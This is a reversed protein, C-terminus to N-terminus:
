APRSASPRRFINGENETKQQKLKVYYASLRQYERFYPSSPDTLSEIIDPSTRYDLQDLPIIYCRGAEKIRYPDVEPDCYPEGDVVLPHTPAEMERLDQITVIIPESRSDERYEYFVEDTFEDNPNWFVESGEEEHFHNLELIYNLLPSVPYNAAEYLVTGSTYSITDYCNKLYALCCYRDKEDSMSSRDWDSITDANREKVAVHHKWEKEVREFIQELKPLFLHIQTTQRGLAYLMDLVHDGDRKYRGREFLDIAFRSNGELHFSMYLAAFYNDFYRNGIFNYLGSESETMLCLNDKLDTLLAEAKIPSIELQAYSNLASLYYSMRDVTFSYCEDSYAYMCIEELVTKLDRPEIGTNLHRSFVKTSDHEESLIQFAQEYFRTITSPVRGEAGFIRLMMTCLLPNEALKQHRRYLDDDKLAKIFSAKLEPRDPRYEYKNILEICQDCSFPEVQVSRFRLMSVVNDVLRSSVLVQAKPYRRTFDHLLDSFGSRYCRKIEDFGDLFIITQYRELHLTFARFSHDWWAETREYLYHAISDCPLRFEKLEAFVPLIGTSPFDTITQLLLDLMVTSKGMGGDAVILLTRAFDRLKAPTPKRIYQSAENLGDTERIRLVPSVYFDYLPTLKNRYMVTPVRHRSEYLPDLYKKLTRIQNEKLIPAYPVTPNDTEQFMPLAFSIELEQQISSGIEERIRAKKGHIGKSLVWSRITGAGTTNDTINECAYYFVGTVFSYFNIESCEVLESKTLASGDPRVPFLSDDPIRNDMSIVEKVSRIIRSAVPIRLANDTIMLFANFVEYAEAMLRYYDKSMRERLLRVYDEEHFPIDSRISIECNKYQSAQKRLTKVNSPNHIPRILRIMSLFLNGENVNLEEGFLRVPTRSTREAETLLTMLVGGSFHIEKEATHMVEIRATM